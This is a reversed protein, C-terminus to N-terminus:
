RQAEEDTKIDEYELGIIYGSVITDGIVCDMGKGILINIDEISVGEESLEGNASIEVDFTVKNSVEKEVLCKNKHDEVLVTAPKRKIATVKGIPNMSGNDYVIDGEGIYDLVQPERNQVEFVYKVTIPTVDGNRGGIKGWLSLLVVIVVAAAIGVLLVMDTVNMRKTKNENM